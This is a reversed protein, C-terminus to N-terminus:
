LKREGGLNKQWNHLTTIEPLGFLEDGYYCGWKSFLLKKLIKLL